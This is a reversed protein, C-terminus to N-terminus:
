KVHGIRRIFAEAHVDVKVNQFITDWEKENEKWYTYEHRRLQEGFDLIDLKLETQMKKIVNKVDKEITKNLILEAQQIKEETLKKSSTKEGINGEARISLSFVPKGNIMQIKPTSRMEKVEFILKNKGKGDKINAIVYTGAQVDGKAWRYKQLEVEDLWGILKDKKFVAGGAMVVEKEAPRICTLVSNHGARLNSSFLGITSIRVMRATKRTAQKTLFNLYRSSIPLLRHQITLVDRAKGKTIILHTRRRLEPDRIFLDMTSSLGERALAEGIVVVQIHEYFPMRSVRATLFRACEFLTKGTTSINWVPSINSAPTKGALAKPEALQATLKYFSEKGDKGEEKDLAIAMVFVREELEIRDWCGTLLPLLLFCALFCLAFKRKM